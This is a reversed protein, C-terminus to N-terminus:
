SDFHGLWSMVEVDELPLRSIWHTISVGNVPDCWDKAIEELPFLVFGRILMRPHPIVIGGKEGLIEGRFDLLDLDLPRAENKVARVRGLDAEVQHLINLLVGAEGEFSVEACANIYDPQKSGPPWAPSQWLGSIKVISVKHTELAKIAAKFTLKPNSLNAGFAIYIPKM